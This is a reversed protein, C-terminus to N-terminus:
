DIHTIGNFVEKDLMGEQNALIVTCAADGTINVATRTMDLIRDIGMIIAIGETPLGVQTLVMSLMILGAGPVGATGISALTATLIVMLLQTVSLDIGYAQSIFMVAVGQMIATGDMNVTAGLPVTFSSISNDVGCHKHLVDQTVPITSASSSTSFAVVMAERINKYFRIPNLRTFLWLIGQYVVASQILLALVICLMYKGLPLFAEYGLTAFTSTSLAFVGIPALLMVFSVLQLMIDNWQECSEKVKQAKTGLVTIATGVLIAFVIIQLMDGNALAQIPNTPIMNLLTDVLEPSTTAEGSGDSVWGLGAGPQFLFGIGLAITIAISTTVLYFLITKGGIRSLKVVDGMSSAGVVLSFLVLPVVVMKIGNLFIGGLLTMIFDLIVDNIITSTTSDAAVQDNLAYLIVGLIIGLVMGILINRTLKEKKFM